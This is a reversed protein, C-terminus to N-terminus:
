FNLNKGWCSDRIFLISYNFAVCNICMLANGPSVVLIPNTDSQINFFISNFSMEKCDIISMSSAKAAFKKFVAKM